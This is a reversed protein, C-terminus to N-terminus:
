QVDTIEFTGVKVLYPASVTNTHHFANRIVVTFSHSFDSLMECLLHMFIM